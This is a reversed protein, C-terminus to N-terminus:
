DGFLGEKVGLLGYGLQKLDPSSRAGMLMKYPQYAFAGAAIPLSMWPNESVAERAFARHEYPALLNQQEKPLKSRLSYLQAHSMQLLMQPDFDFAQSM